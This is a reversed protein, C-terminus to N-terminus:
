SPLVVGRAACAVRLETAAGMLQTMSDAAGGGSGIKWALDVMKVGHERIATDGSGAFQQRMAKYRQQTFNAGATAEPNDRLQECAKVGSDPKADSAAAAADASATAPQADDRPVRFYVFLSANVLFVAVLALTVWVWPDTRKRKPAPPIARPVWGPHEHQQSQPNPATVPTIV